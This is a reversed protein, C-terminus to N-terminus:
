ITGEEYPLVKRRDACRGLIPVVEDFEEAEAAVLLVTAAAAFPRGAEDAAKRCRLARALSARSSGTLPRVLGEVVQACTMGSTQAAFANRFSRLCPM